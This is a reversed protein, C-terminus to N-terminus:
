IRNVFLVLADESNKISLGFSTYNSQGRPVPFRYMGLKGGFGNLQGEWTIGAQGEDQPMPYLLAGAVDKTVHLYSILQFRDERAMGCKLNSRKYKADLIFGDGVFDPFCKGHVRGTSSADYLWLPNLGQKNQPHKVGASKLVSALYEEWLWAADFLVGNVCDKEAGFSLKDNRLIRLCLKQLDHVATLYPHRIPRVNRLLVQRRESSSYDPTVEVIKAVADRTESDNTLIHAINQRAIIHEITHRVLHNLPNNATYERSRYAIKGAFPIDHGIYRGVDIAGKIHDDNRDFSRYTRFLGRSVARKLAYPFLFVLMDLVSEPDSETPMKVINVGLVRQLMYYLFYQGDGDDFRTHIRVSLDGVGFFGVVNGMELRKERIGFLPADDLADGNEGASQPFVWLGPYRKSLDGLSVGALPTLQALESDSLVDSVSNDQVTLRKM